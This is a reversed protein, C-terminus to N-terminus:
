PETRGVFEVTGAALATVAGGPQAVLMRGDTGLGAFRGEVVADETGDSVRVVQGLGHARASWALRVRAFGEREWVGYWRTLANLYVALAWDLAVAHGAEAELCTAGYRTGEPAHAVNIGVGAVVAGSGSGGVTELLIGSVKAGGVLVDNPWKLTVDCGPAARVALDAVALAVVFSLEPWSQMAGDPRLVTSTYLNGPPSEWARGHRGHGASQARAQVVTWAPAGRAVLDRALRNTSDVVDHVILDVSAPLTDIDPGNVAPVPM